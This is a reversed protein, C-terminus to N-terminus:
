NSVTISECMMENDMQLKGNGSERTYEGPSMIFANNGTISGEQATWTITGTNETLYDVTRDVSINEGALTATFTYEFAAAHINQRASGTKSNSELGTTVELEGSIVEYEGPANPITLTDDLFRIYDSGLASAHSGSGLAPVGLDGEGAPYSDSGKIRVFETGSGDTVIVDGDTDTNLEVADIDSYTNVSTSTAGGAVTLVESTAAGEDELTVDVSTTGQNEVDLTTGSSPQSIDYQRVKEFQYSLEQAIPSGDETEFPVTITDPHGGKGVTYIRRGADDTGGDAIEERTVVAHTARLSNDSAPQLFDGGPDVTNDSGDVYWRQLDYEFAAEHTEAGNFFGQPNIDGVGRQTQTNADPEWGWQSTMNDSFLEWSPDDPVEGTTTEEIWETRTPRVGAQYTSTM